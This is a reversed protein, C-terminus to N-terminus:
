RDREGERDREGGSERERERERGGEGEGRGREKIVPFGPGNDRCGNLFSNVQPALRVLVLKETYVIFLYILFFDDQQQLRSM